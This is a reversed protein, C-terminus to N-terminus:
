TPGKDGRCPADEPQPYLLRGRSKSPLQSYISYATKSLRCPTAKWSPPQAPIHEYSGAANIWESYYSSSVHMILLYVICSWEYKTQKENLSNTMIDNCNTFDNVYQCCKLLSHRLILIVSFVDLKFGIRFFSLTPHLLHLSSHEHRYSSIIDRLQPWWRERQEGGPYYILVSFWPPIINVPFVSSSPPSCTGTGSQRGCIRCSIVQARVQAESNLPWCSVVQVM